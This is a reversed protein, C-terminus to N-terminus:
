VAESKKKLCDLVTFKTFNVILLMFYCCSRCSKQQMPGCLDSHILELPANTRHTALKFLTRIMKGKLCANCRSTITNVELAPLGRVLENSRIRLVAQQHLHDLPYHWLTTLTQDKLSILLTDDMGNGATLITYLCDVKKAVVMLLEDRYIEASELKFSINIGKVTLQSVSILNTSCPSPIHLVNSPLITKSGTAPLWVKIPVTGIRTALVLEGTATRM